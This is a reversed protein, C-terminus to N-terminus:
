RNRCHTRLSPLLWCHLYCSPLAYQHSIGDHAIMPKWFFQRQVGNHSQPYPQLSSSWIGGLDQLDFIRQHIRQMAVWALPGWEMLPGRSHTERETGVEKRHGVFFLWPNSITSPVLILVCMDTMLWEEGYINNYQRNIRRVINRKKQGTNVSVSFHVSLWGDM